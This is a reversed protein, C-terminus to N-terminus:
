SGERMRQKAAALAARGSATLDRWRGFTSPGGDTFLGRATLSHVVSNIPCDEIRTVFHRGHNREAYRLETLEAATPTTM